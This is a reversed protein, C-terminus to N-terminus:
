MIISRKGKGGAKNSGATMGTQNSETSSSSSSATSGPANGWVWKSEDDYGDELINQWTKGGEGSNTNEYKNDKKGSNDKKLKDQDEYYVNRDIADSCAGKIVAPDYISVHEGTIYTYQKKDACWIKGSYMKWYYFSKKALFATVGALVLTLGLDFYDFSTGLIYLGSVTLYATAATGAIYLGAKYNWNYPLFQYFQNVSNLTLFGGFAMMAVGIMSMWYSSNSVLALTNNFGEGQFFLNSGEFILLPGVAAIAIDGYEPWEARKEVPVLRRVGDFVFYGAGIMAAYGMATGTMVMGTSSSGAFATLLKSGAFIGLGGVAIEGLAKLGNTLNDWFGSHEILYSAM